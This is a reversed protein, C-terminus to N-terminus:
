QTTVVKEIVKSFHAHELALVKSAIRDPTDTSLLEVREQFIITGEDYAPDVYHITIGSQRENNDFVAQHVYKGYMGKGGYKPLLAPHINVIAKPYATVLFEPILLLFGALVIFDIKHQTLLALTSSEDRLQQKSLLASSINHNKARELVFAADNNSIILRIEAVSNDQFHAIIKEANSGGGSAFIAIGKKM